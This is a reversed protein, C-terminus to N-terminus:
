RRSLVAMSRVTFPRVQFIILLAEWSIRSITTQWTGPSLACTRVIRLPAAGVAWVTSPITVSTLGTCGAFAESATSAWGSGIARASVRAEESRTSYYGGLIELSAPFELSTLGTCGYFAEGGIAKVGEAFTVEKLNAYGKFAGDCVFKVGGDIVVRTIGDKYISWSPTGGNFSMDGEGSITLTGNELTWSVGSGCSGRQAFTGLTMCLGFAALFLGKKKM